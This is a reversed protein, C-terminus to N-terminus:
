VWRTRREKGVRREESRLDHIQCRLFQNPVVELSCAQLILLRFQDQSQLFFQQYLSPHLHHRDLVLRRHLHYQCRNRCHRHFHFHHHFRRLFHCHYHHLYQLHCHHFHPYM